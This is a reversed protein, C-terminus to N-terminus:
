TRPVSFFLQHRLMFSNALDVLPSNSVEVRDPERLPSTVTKVTLLTNAANSMASTFAVRFSVCYHRLKPSSEPRIESDHSLVSLSHPCAARRGATHANAQETVLLYKFALM